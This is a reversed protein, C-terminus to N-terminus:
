NGTYDLIALWYVARMSQPFFLHYISSCFFCGSSAIFFLSFILKHSLPLDVLTTSLNDFWAYLFLLAAAFHTWVNGPIYITWSPV